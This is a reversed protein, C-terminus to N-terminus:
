IVARGAYGRGVINSLQYVAIEIPQSNLFDLKQNSYYYTISPNNSVLTRIVRKKYIVDVEYKEEKEDLPVDVGDRWDNDLRARRVWTIIINGENDRRGEIHVPALPKLHRAQYTFDQEKTIALSKGVSVAKYFLAKGITHHPLPVLHSSLLTFAEGSKHHAMAWETGQRGRLLTSLRYTNNAILTAHAFQILEDGLLAVNVGNLVALLEASHLTGSLLTIDVTGVSDWTVYQTAALTTITFGITAQTDTTNIVTYNNGNKEGGTDSYYIVAGDWNEGDPAVALYAHQESSVPLAPADIMRMITDAIPSLVIAHSPTDIGSLAKNYLSVDNAVGIIRLLGHREMETRTVRITHTVQEMALSIIDGPEIMAYRTPVICTFQMRAQWAHYLTTEAIHRAQSASLVLPLQTTIHNKGPVAYRAAHQNIPDYHFPRDLYSITVRQPLSLEHAYSIDLLQQSEGKSAPVLDDPNVTITKQLTRPTCTLVGNSEIIDFFFATTLQELANRISMNEQIIYGDVSDSLASVDYDDPKLGAKQLLDAVISALTANGLKGQVWHGTRWLHSDHWVGELDPWFSFPRADWCWLFRRPILQANGETQQQDELFDLTAEIAQRQAYFDVQGQSARPFFSEISSPDYFVNPQNSCGDVSPFGFETFWVPKMKPKWATLQNNPNTHSHSWWYAINKWAYTPTTYYHKQTRSSNWYYDWGEGKLWSSKIMKYDIHQQETDPTLPFYADIGVMDIDPSAWLSDLHFWGKHSHYESWDAAYTVATHSAVIKKVDKALAIFHDVAPYIGEQESFSTMGIMESGIVFGDVLAHTLTAYHMIFRNYGQTATFWDDVEKTNQPVIRGRWPKKDPELQDVFIMPYLLIKLGRQQLEKCLEIITHDSPTGGYTPTTDDIFLVKEANDRTMGAVSWAKPAIHTTGHFEVKPTITCNVAQTSSAFWTVVLAVWELSPLTRQMQDLAVLVDAKGAYNHINIYSKGGSPVFGASTAHGEQKSHITPSYVMEGAGPILVIDKIKREVRHDIARKVEFTFNPIRNGYDALPFDEIVIYALGRYAPIQKPSAYKAIIDDPLQDETGYHINYKGQASSLVEETLVKSDAWVRVIEDIEGECLAIALTAFYSYHVSTSTVKAAGGKGGTHSTHHQAVEKIDTAWIVNGALRMSGYITPITKGYTSTQVRLDALRIGHQIPLHVDDAFFTSHVASGLNAGIVAGNFGGLAFGAAAGAVPLVVDSM